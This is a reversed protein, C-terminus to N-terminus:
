TMAKETIAASRFLANMELDVRDVIPGKSTWNWQSLYESIQDAFSALFLEPMSEGLFGEMATAYSDGNHRTLAWQKAKHARKVSEEYHETIFELHEHIAQAETEIPVRMVLSEPIEDYCGGCSVLTPRGSALSSIISASAGEIIPFRLCAIANANKMERALSKDDISGLLELDVKAAGSRAIQKLHEAYSKSVGGAIRYQWKSALWPHSALARVISECRKNPNVDGITLLQLKSDSITPPPFEREINQPYALPITTVPCHLLRATSKHYFDAHTIVGLTNAAAFRLVPHKTAASMYWDKQIDHAAATHYDALANAGAEESLVRCYSRTPDESCWEYLLHHLMYDHLITVGPVRQQHEIAYYHNAFHNGLNYIVLDFKSLYQEAHADFSHAYELPGVRSAETKSVHSQPKESRITTVQHGKELLASIVERSFAGIASYKSYPTYWALKMSGVKGRNDELQDGDRAM